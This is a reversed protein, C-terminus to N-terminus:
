LIRGLTKYILEDLEKQYYQGTRRLQYIQTVLEIDSFNNICNEEWSRDRLEEILDETDIESLDIEVNAYTM